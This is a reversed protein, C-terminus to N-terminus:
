GVSISSVDKRLLHEKKNFLFVFAVLAGGVTNCLLDLQSSHRSPLMVQVSEIILSFLFALLVTLVFQWSPLCGAKRLFVALFFGIPVFGLVNSAVDQWTSNRSLEKRSLPALFVPALPTFRAPISLLCSAQGQNSVTENDYARFQYDIVPRNAPSFGSSSTNAYDFITVRQISGHWPETGHQNNGLLIQGATKGQNALLSFGAFHAKSQGDVFVDTAAATSVIALSIAQGTKLQDRLGVERYGKETKPNRVFLALHEQWQAIVLPPQKEGDYLTFICGLGSPTESPTLIFHFSVGRSGSFQIADKTFAHGRNYPKSAALGMNFFVKGQEHAVLVDNKARFNFPLWCLCLTISATVIALLLWVAWLRRDTLLM